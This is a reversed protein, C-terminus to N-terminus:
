VKNFVSEKKWMRLCTRQDKRKRCKQERKMSWNTTQIKRIIQKITQRRGANQLGAADLWSDELIWSDGNEKGVPSAAFLGIRQQGWVKSGARIQMASNVELQLKCALTHMGAEVTVQIEISDKKIKHFQWSTNCIFTRGIHLLYEESILLDGALILCFIPWMLNQYRARTQIFTKPMLVNQTYPKTHTNTHLVQRANYLQIYPSFLPKIQASTVGSPHEEYSLCLWPDNRM